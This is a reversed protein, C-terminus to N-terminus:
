CNKMLRGVRKLNHIMNEVLKNIAIKVPPVYLARDVSFGLDHNANYLKWFKLRSGKEISSSHYSDNWMVAQEYTMPKLTKGELTNLINAGKQTQVFVSSIGVNDAFQPELSEIGWFDALTLDSGSKGSKAPCSKCSPRLYLNGIFGKLYTDDRFCKSSVTQEKGILTEGKIVLGYQKWGFGEDQKARFNIFTIKNTGAEKCITNLYGRWIGPSPAGHCVVDVVLLNEYEKCLYKRLGAIQCSTGAFLVQRGQKLFQDVQKYTDGIRSQVYKSRMLPALEGLVEAFCHEVEWNEDFRAGFVVGGQKITQEALLIFIGGSSSLLRKDENNNKAALVQLPLKPNNQNIVPCVRECLGCDICISVDALPYLFGEEDERMTICQKPCRQVCASCGCCGSKDAINIM